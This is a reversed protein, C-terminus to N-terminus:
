KVYNKVKEEFSIKVELQDLSPEISQKVGFESRFDTAELNIYVEKGIIVGPIVPIATETKDKHLVEDLLKFPCLNMQKSIEPLKQADEWVKIRNPSLTLKDFYSKAKDVSLYKQDKLPSNQHLECILDLFKNFSIQNNRM